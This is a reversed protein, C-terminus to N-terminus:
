RYADMEVRLRVAPYERLIMERFLPLRYFYKGEEDRGLVFGLEFRALSHDMKHGDPKFVPLQKKLASSDFVTM